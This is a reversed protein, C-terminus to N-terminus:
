TALLFYEAEQRLRYLRMNARSCIPRDLSRTKRGGPLSYAQKGFNFYFDVNEGRCIRLDEPLDQKAVRALQLLHGTLQYLSADDLCLGLYHQNNHSYFVGEGM